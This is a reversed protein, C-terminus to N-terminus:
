EVETPKANFEVHILRLQENIGTATDEMSDLTMKLNDIGSHHNGDSAELQWISLEITQLRVTMSADSKTWLNDAHQIKGQIDRQTEEWKVNKADKLQHGVFTKFYQFEIVTVMKEPKTSGKM